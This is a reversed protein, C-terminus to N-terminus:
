HDVMSVSGCFRRHRTLDGKRRFSRGCLCPYSGVTSSSSRGSPWGPHHQEVLSMLGEQCLAQWAKRDQALDYWGDDMNVAKIDATVLDRWRRKTGHTPRKKELEGYLLQKPMRSPEMRALHGLWRLRQKMLLHAMTVEMGFAEALQRSTIREKWQQYKSVGMITRVCRNHFNNLRRVSEAKVAWTEAGYLLVSLVVARYVNKKTEASFHRNRFVPRQLCGFARAAKGIRCKVEEKVEGDRTINSGLYTFDSVIEIQDAELQLPLTDTSALHNGIVM